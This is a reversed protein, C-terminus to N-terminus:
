QDTKNELAIRLAQEIQELTEDDMDDLKITRKAELQIPAGNAGTIETTTRDGYKKPALKAARWQRAWIQLKVVNVDDVKANDAMEVINDAIVEQQAERARAIEKAFVPDKAMTRYVMTWHPMDEPECVVTISKGEILGECIRELIGEDLPNPRTPPRGRKAPPKSEADPEAKKRRPM